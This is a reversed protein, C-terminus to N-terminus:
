LRAAGSRTAPNYYRKKLGERAKTNARPSESWLRTPGAGMDSNVALPPNLSSPQSQWMLRQSSPPLYVLFPSRKGAM